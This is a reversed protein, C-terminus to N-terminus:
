GKPKRNLWSPTVSQFIEASTFTERWEGLVTMVFDLNLINKEAEVTKRPAQDLSDVGSSRDEGVDFELTEKPSCKSMTKTLLVHHVRQEDSFHVKQDGSFRREYKLSKTSKPDSQLILSNRRTNVTKVIFSQGDEVSPYRTWDNELIQLKDANKLIGKM